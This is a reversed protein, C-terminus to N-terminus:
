RVLLVRKAETRGGADLRIELCPELSGYDKSHFDISPVNAGGWPICISGGHLEM